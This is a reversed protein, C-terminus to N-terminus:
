MKLMCILLSMVAFNQSPPCTRVPPSPSPLIWTLWFWRGGFKSKEESKVWKVKCIKSFRYINTFIWFMKKLFQSKQSPPMGGYCQIVPICGKIGRGWHLLGHRDPCSELWQRLYKAACWILDPQWALDLSWIGLINSLVISKKSIGIFCELTWWMVLYRCFSYRLVKKHGLGLNTKHDLEPM